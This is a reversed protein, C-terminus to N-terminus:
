FPATFRGEECKADWEITVTWRHAIETGPVIGYVCKVVCRIGVGSGVGTRSQDSGYFHKGSRYYMLVNGNCQLGTYLAYKADSDDDDVFTITRTSNGLRAQTGRRNKKYNLTADPKSGEFIDLFRIPNAVNQATGDGTSTNSLRATWSAALTPDGAIPHGVDTLFVESVGDDNAVECM